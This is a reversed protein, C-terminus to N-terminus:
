GEVTVPPASTKASPALLLWGSVAMGPAQRSFIRPSCRPSTTHCYRSAPPSRPHSCSLQTCTWCHQWATSQLQKPQLPSTRTITGACWSATACCLKWAQASGVLHSMCPSARPWQNPWQTHSCSHTWSTWKHSPQATLCHQLRSAQAFHSHISGYASTPRPPSLPWPFCKIWGHEQAIRMTQYHSAPCPTQTPTAPALVTCSRM